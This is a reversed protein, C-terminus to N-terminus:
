EKGTAGAIWLKEGPREKRYSSSAQGTSLCHEVLSLFRKLQERQHEMQMTSVSTHMDPMLSPSVCLGRRFVEAWSMTNTFSYVPRIIDIRLIESDVIAVLSLGMDILDFVCENDKVVLVICKGQVDITYATQKLGTMPLPCYFGSLDTFHPTMGQRNHLKQQPDFLEAVSIKGVPVCLKKALQKRLYAASVTSGIDFTASSVLNMRDTPQGTGEEKGLESVRNSSCRIIYSTPRMTGSCYMVERVDKLAKLVHKPKLAQDSFFERNFFSNALRM